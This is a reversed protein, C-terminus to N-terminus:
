NITCSLFSFIYYCYYYHYLLLLIIIFLLLFCYCCYYCCFIYLIIYNYSHFILSGIYGIYDMVTITNELESVVNPLKESYKLKTLYMM